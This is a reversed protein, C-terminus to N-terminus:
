TPALDAVPYPCALTFARRLWRDGKIGKVSAAFVTVNSGKPTFVLVKARKPVIPKGTPGYIGTGVDLWYAYPALSGARGVVHNALGLANSYITDRALGTDVRITRRGLNATERMIEGVHQVVPGDPSRLFRNLAAQNNRVRVRYTAM